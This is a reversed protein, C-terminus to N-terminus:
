TFTITDIYGDKPNSDTITINYSKMSDVSSIALIIDSSDTKGAFSVKRTSNANHAIVENALSKLQSGSQKGNYKLFKNNFTAIETANMTTEANDATGQTSNFIRVGVAILLIAILISGAILLAKTANEM